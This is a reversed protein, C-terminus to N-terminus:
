AQLRAVIIAPQFIWVEAGGSDDDSGAAHGALPVDVASAAAAARREKGRAALRQAYAILPIKKDDEDRCWLFTDLIFKAMLDPVVDHSNTSGLVTQLILKRWLLPFPM